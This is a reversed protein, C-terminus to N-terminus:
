TSRMYSKAIKLLYRGTTWQIDIFNFAAVESVTVWMCREFLIYEKITHGNIQKKYDKDSLHHYYYAKM